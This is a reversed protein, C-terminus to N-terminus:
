NKSGKIMKECLSMSTDDLKGNTYLKKVVRRMKYNRIIEELIKNESELTGLGQSGTSFTRQSGAIQGPIQGPMQGPIRPHFPMIGGPVIGGGIQRQVPLPNLTRSINMNMNMPIPKTPKDTFKIDVVPQKRSERFSKHSYYLQKVVDQDKNLMGAVMMPEKGRVLNDYIISELRLKIANPSRNLTQGIDEYSKGGAYMNILQQKEQTQWRQNNSM